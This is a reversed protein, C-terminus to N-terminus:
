DGAFVKLAIITQFILVLTPFILRTVTDWRRNGGQEQEASDRTFRDNNVAKTIELAAIRDMAEAVSGNMKDLRTGVRRMEAGIEALATDRTSFQQTLFDMM